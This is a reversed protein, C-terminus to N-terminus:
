RTVIGRDDISFPDLSRREKPIAHVVFGNGKIDIEFRYSKNSSQIKPDVAQEEVLEDITLYRGYKSRLIKQGSRIQEAVSVAFATDRNTDANLFTRVLWGTVAVVVIIFIALITRELIKWLFVDPGPRSIVIKM